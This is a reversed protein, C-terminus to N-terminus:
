LELPYQGYCPVNQLSQFFNWFGTLQMEAVKFHDGLEKSLILIHFGIQICM